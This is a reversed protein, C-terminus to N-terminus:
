GNTIMPDGWWAWDYTGDNKPGPLTSFLLTVNNGAYSSLNVNYPNWKQETMNHKPDIYQSFILNEPAISNIYIKYDVGDGKEPSWVSPDLAIDFRLISTNTVPIHAFYFISQNQAIPHEFIIYKNEDGIKGSGTFFSQGSFIQVPVPKNLKFVNDPSYFVSFHESELFKSQERVINPDPFLQQLQDDTATSYGILYNALIEQHDKFNAANRNRFYKWLNNWFNNNGDSYWYSTFLEM